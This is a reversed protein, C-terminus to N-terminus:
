TPVQGMRLSMSLRGPFLAGLSHPSPLSLLGLPLQTDAQPLLVLWPHSLSRVPAAPTCQHSSALDWSHAGLLWPSCQPSVKKVETKNERSARLERKSFLSMEQIRNLSEKGAALEAKM